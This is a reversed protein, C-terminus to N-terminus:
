GQGISGPARLRDSQGHTKPGGSFGWRKVVGAFGKGKTTGSVNVIDGVVFPQSIASGVIYEEGANDLERTFRPMHALKAATYIASQPKAVRKAPKTGVGVQIADYGDKAASKVQTVLMAPAAIVTIARRIGSEDWAQKMAKKTTVYTQIM